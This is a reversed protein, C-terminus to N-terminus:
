IVDDRVVGGMEGLFIVRTVAYGIEQDPIKRAEVLKQSV